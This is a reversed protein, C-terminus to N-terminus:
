GRMMPNLGPLCPMLGALLIARKARAALAKMESPVCLWNGGLAPDPSLVRRLGFRTVTHLTYDMAQLEHYLVEMSFGSRRLLKDNAELVIVPRWREIFEKGGRLVRIEEGETDIFLMRVNLVDDTLSDLTACDVSVTEAAQEEGHVLHGTGSRHDHPVSFQLSANSDSVAAQLARINGYRAMSVAKELACYNAPLPEFAIVRGSEGVIDSFSMTETGINAGVEIITDGKRALAGAIAINRWDFYGHVAYPYGHFDSTRVLMPSGTVARVMCTCDEQQGASQPYLYLRLRQALLPPMPRCWRQARKLRLSPNQEAM